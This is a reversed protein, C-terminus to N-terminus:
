SSSSRCSLDVFRAYHGQCAVVAGRTPGWRNKLVVLDAEGPRIGEPEGPWDAQRVELVVDAVRGWEPDLHPRDGDHRVVLHRPLSVLVHAGRSALGAVRFPVAGHVLDADDLVLAADRTMGDVLDDWCTWTADERAWVHLPLEVLAARARELRYTHDDTTRGELLWSLPVKGACALLRATVLDHPDQPCALRTATGQRASEAAWQTLLSSRGQGPRGTVVWVRGGSRGGTLGDLEPFDGTPGTRPRPVQDFAQLLQTTTRVAGAHM